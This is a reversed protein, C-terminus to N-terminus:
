RGPAEDATDDRPTSRHERSEHEAETRVIEGPAELGPACRGQLGYRELADPGAAVHELHLHRVPRVGPPGTTSTGMVNRSRRRPWDLILAPDDDLRQEHDQAQAPVLEATAPRHSAGTDNAPTGSSSVGGSGAGPTRTTM